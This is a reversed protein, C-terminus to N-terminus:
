TRYFVFSRGIDDEINIGLILVDGSHYIPRIESLMETILQQPNTEMRNSDNMIRFSGRNFGTDLFFCNNLVSM